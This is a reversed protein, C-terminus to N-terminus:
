EKNCLVAKESESCWACEQQQRPTVGDAANFNDAVNSAVVMAAARLVESIAPVDLTMVSGPAIGQTTEVLIRSRSRHAVSQQQWTLHVHGTLVALNRAVPNAMRLPILEVSVTGQSRFILLPSVESLTGFVFIDAKRLVSVAQSFPVASLDIFEVTYKPLVHSLTQLLAGLDTTEWPQLSLM